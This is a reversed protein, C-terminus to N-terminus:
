GLFVNSNHWALAHRAPWLHRSAPLALAVGDLADYTSGGAFDSRLRASVQLRYDSRVTAYGLDFLRHLDSRLALGNPVTHEGGRSFPKIHSAQLVPVTPERTVACANAYADIVALRFAGQGLRTAHLSPRGYRASGPTIAGASGPPLTMEAASLCEALIRAGEGVGLDYTKGAVISPRWDHPAAVWLEPPLFVTSTLLICNVPRAADHVAGPGLARLRRAFSFEDPAGNAEEFTDWALWLPMPEESELLGFGGIAHHPAKMKFFLPEGPLLARLRRASPRWFNVESLQRLALFDFWSQDTPAVYGRMRWITDRSPWRRSWAARDTCLYGSRAAARWRGIGRGVDVLRERVADREAYASTVEHVRRAPGRGYTVRHPVAGHRDDLM